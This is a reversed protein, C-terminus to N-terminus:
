GRVFKILPELYKEDAARLADIYETRVGPVMQKDKLGAGWTFPKQGNVKLLLDTMSRAHRGNGNSFCHISVLRHHFRAGLEDWNYTENKIWYESDKILKHLETSIKYPPVGINKESDRFKGAWRWVEKFMETHLRKIFAESLVNKKLQRDAWIEGKIINEQEAENLESQTSIYSPILGKSEDPDLPTAGYPYEFYM